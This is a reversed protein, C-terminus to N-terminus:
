IEKLLRERVPHGGPRAEIAAEAVGIRAAAIGIRGAVTLLRSFIVKLRRYVSIFASLIRTKMPTLRREDAAM